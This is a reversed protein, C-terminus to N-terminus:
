NPSSSGDSTTVTLGGNLVWEAHQAEDGTGSPVRLHMNDFRYSIEAQRGTLRDFLGVALDPWNNTHQTPNSM